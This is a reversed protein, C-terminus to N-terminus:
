ADATDEDTTGAWALVGHPEALHMISELSAGGSVRATKYPRTLDPAFIVFRVDEDGLFDLSLLKGRGTRWEASLCGEPTLMVQPCTLEPHGVLLAILSKLSALSPPAQDPQEEQAIAYLHQLRMGLRQRCRLKPHQAIRRIEAPLTGEDASLAHTDFREPYPM